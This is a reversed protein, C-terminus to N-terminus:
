CIILREKEVNTKRLQHILATSRQILVVPVVLIGCLAPDQTYEYGLIWNRLTLISAQGETCFLNMAVFVYDPLDGDHEERSLFPRFDEKLHM